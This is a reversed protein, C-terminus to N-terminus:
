SETTPIFGLNPNKEPQTNKQENISKENLDVCKTSLETFIIEAIYEYLAKESIYKSLALKYSPSLSNIISFTLNQQYKFFDEDNIYVSKNAQSPKLFFKETQKLKYAIMYLLYQIDNEFNLTGVVMPKPTRKILIFFILGLNLILSGMLFYNLM